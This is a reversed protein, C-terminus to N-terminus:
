FAGQSIYALALTLSLGGVVGQPFLKRTKLYGNAMYGGLVASVGTGLRIGTVASAPRLMLRAALLYSAALVISAALSNKSGKKVYGMGGGVLLLVAFIATVVALPFGNNEGSGGGDSEGTPRLIKGGGGPSSPVSPRGSTAKPRNSSSKTTRKRHRGFGSARIGSPQAGGGLSAYVVTSKRLCAPASLGPERRHGAQLLTQVLAPM